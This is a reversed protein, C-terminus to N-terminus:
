DCAMIDHMHMCYMQATPMHADTHSKHMINHMPKKYYKYLLMHVVHVLKTHYLYQAACAFLQAIFADQMNYSKSIIIDNSINHM